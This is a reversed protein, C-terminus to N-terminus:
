QCTVSWRLGSPEDDGGDPKFLIEQFTERLSPGLSPGDSSQCVTVGVMVSFCDAQFDQELHCNGHRATVIQRGMALETARLSIPRFWHSDMMQIVAM